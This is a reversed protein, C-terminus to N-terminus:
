YWQRHQLLNLGRRIAFHYFKKCNIFGERWQSMRALVRQLIVVPERPSVRPSVRTCQKTSLFYRVRSQQRGRVQFERNNLIPFRKRAFSVVVHLFGTKKELQYDYLSRSLVPETPLARSQLILPQLGGIQRDKSITFQRDMYRSMWRDVSGGIQCNATVVIQRDISRAIQRGISRAKLRDVSRGIQLDM